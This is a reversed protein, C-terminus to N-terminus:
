FLVNTACIGLSVYLKQWELLNYPNEFPIVETNLILLAYFRHM